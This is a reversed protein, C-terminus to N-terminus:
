IREFSPSVYLVKEPEIATIWIVDSITDAMRRFREESERLAEETRKGEIAILGIHGAGEILQLDSESPRRAEPYYMAFTGVVEQNKSILPQSWSARIGYGLATDQYGAWLPLDSSCM